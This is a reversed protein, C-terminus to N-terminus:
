FWVKGVINRILISGIDQSGLSDVKNDGVVEVSDSKVQTIRKVMEKNQFRFVVIDGVKPKSFLYSWNNVWVIEGAKLTAEM